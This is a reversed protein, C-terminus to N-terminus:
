IRFFGSDGGLVSIVGKVIVFALVMVAAGVMSYLIRKKARNISVPDGRSVIWEVGGWMFMIVAVMGGILFLWNFGFGIVSGGVTDLLDGGPSPRVAAPLNSPLPIGASSGPIKLQALLSM